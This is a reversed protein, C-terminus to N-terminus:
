ETLCNTFCGTDLARKLIKIMSETTILGKDLTANGSKIRMSLEHKVLNFGTVMVFRACSSSSMVLQLLVQVGIDRKTKLLCALLRTVLPANLEMNILRKLQNALIEVSRHDNGQVLRNVFIELVLYYFLPHKEFVRALVDGNKFVDPLAAIVVAVAIVITKDDKSRGCDM